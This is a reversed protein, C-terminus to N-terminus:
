QILDWTVITDPPIPRRARRGVLQDMESPVIGGAPRKVTLMDLTLPTGQPIFTTAVVSRAGVRRVDSELPIMGLRGHGLAKEASRANRIYEALHPPTLSMAHDPGEQTSDLTFHKELLCAGTAVAWGGSQTSTSHDSLGCPVGFEDSLTILARLNLSELPTPYASVCHLLVLRHGAGLRNIEEVRGNLEEPMSAGTSLILPLGTKVAARVLAPNTLDPSAIKIAPANLAVLRDVDAPSFPTALFVISRRRCYDAIRSFESDSLELRALMDRQTHRGCSQKQYTATPAEATTLEDARFMQFKVAHAGAEVAADVLRLATEVCGNHNVGAEAVIFVPEGPGILRDGVTVAKPAVCGTAHGGRLAPMAIGKARLIAEALLFDIPEDIDVADDLRQRVARRDHGLFAQHDNPTRLADFLAARTVAVVAGDHYYLPELDQRRYISNPRFQAMSDGDVRHLWDPHMKGVPAVSRVSDAGTTILHVVARDILGESRIPINGYLLVVVDATAGHWEEWVSVAHRAAADVTATDGALEPPRDVLEIGSQRALELARVSDTSLLVSTLSRASRAHEFTYAIVPKGLLDRVCKDPLGKSGARALIVGLVVM